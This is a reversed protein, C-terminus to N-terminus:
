TPLWFLGSGWFQGGHLLTFALGIRYYGECLVGERRRTFHNEVHKNVWLKAWSPGQIITGYCFIACVNCKQLPFFLWLCLGNRFFWTFHHREVYMSRVIWRRWSLVQTVFSLLYQACLNKRVFYIFDCVRFGERSCITYHSKCMTRM